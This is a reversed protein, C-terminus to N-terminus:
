RVETTTKAVLDFYSGEGRRRVGSVALYAGRLIVANGDEGEVIVVGDGSDLELREFGTVVYRGEFGGDPNGNASPQEETVVKAAPLVERSWAPDNAREHQVDWWEALLQDLDLGRFRFRFRLEHMAEKPPLGPGLSQCEEEAELAQLRRLDELSILAAVEKGQRQIVIFRERGRYVREVLESLYRRLDMMPVRKLPM